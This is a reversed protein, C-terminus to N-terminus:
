NFVLSELGPDVPYSIDLSAFIVGPEKRFFVLYLFSKNLQLFLFRM